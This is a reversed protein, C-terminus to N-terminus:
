RTEAPFKERTAEPALIPFHPSCHSLYIFFPKDTNKEIFATAENNLRDTLYEGRPANQLGPLAALYPAFYANGSEGPGGRYGGINVDFGQGTPGRMLGTGLNWKGIHATAYGKDHLAEALTYTNEPLFVRNPPTLVKRRSAKGMDGTMM